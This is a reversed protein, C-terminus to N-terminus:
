PLILVPPKSSPLPKAAPPAVQPGTIIIEGQYGHDDTAKYDLDLAQGPRGYHPEKKPMISELTVQPPLDPTVSIHWTPGKEITVKTEIDSLQVEYQYGTQGQPHIIEKQVKLAAGNVTIAAAEGYTMITLTSTQHAEILRGGQTHDRTDQTMQIPEKDINEPPTIWARVQMPLAAKAGEPASPPTTWDFAQKILEGHPAQATAATVAMTLAILFRLHYPDRQAMGPHPTGAKFNEGHQDWLRSIHLSWLEKEKTSSHAAPSDGIQQAPRAPDGLNDDLRRLADDRSVKLSGTKYRWPSAALALAFAAVSAMRGYPPMMGWVGAWSASLFLGTVALPPVARPWLREWLLAARARGVARNFASPLREPTIDSQPIETM